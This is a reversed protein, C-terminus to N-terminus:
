AVLALRMGGLNEVTRRRHCNACRVDCKKIEKEVGEWPYPWAGMQVVAMRKRGRVHDFELVVPDAENCDVCPHTQLYALLRERNNEKRLTRSRRHVAACHKKKNRRYYKKMLEKSCKRCNPQRRDKATSKFNFSSLRRRKKCVTCRKM